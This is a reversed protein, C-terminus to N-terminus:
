ATGATSSSPGVTELLGPESLSQGQAVAAGMPAVRSADQLPVDTQADGFAGIAVIPELPGVMVPEGGAEELELEAVWADVKSWTHDEACIPCRILSTFNPTREFTLRDTEIGTPVDM